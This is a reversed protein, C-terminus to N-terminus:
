LGRVQECFVFISQPQEPYPLVAMSQKLDDDVEELAEDQESLQQFVDYMSLNKFQSVTERYCDTFVELM